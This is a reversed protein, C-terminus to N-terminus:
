VKLRIQSKEVFREEWIRILFFAPVVLVAEFVLQFFQFDQHLFLKNVAASLFVLVGGSLFILFPNFSIPLKRTLIGIKVIFLLLLPWYGLNTQTLFSLILGGFFALLLNAGDDIALSRAILVVLVLNLSIVSSQLFAFLIIWLFLTKM